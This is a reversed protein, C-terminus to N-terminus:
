EGFEEEILGQLWVPDEENMCVGVASQLLEPLFSRREPSYAILSRYFRERHVVTEHIFAAAYDAFLKMEDYIRWFEGVNRETDIDYEIRHLIWSLRKREEYTYMSKLLSLEPMSRAARVLWFETELDDHINEFGCALLRELLEEPAERVLPMMRVEKYFSAYLLNEFEIKAYLRSVVGYYHSKMLKELVSWHRINRFSTFWVGTQKLFMSFGAAIDQPNTVYELTLDSFVADFFEKPFPLAEDRYELIRWQVDLGDYEPKRSQEEEATVAFIEAGPFRQRLEPLYSLSEVVLIREFFDEPRLFDPLKPEIENM